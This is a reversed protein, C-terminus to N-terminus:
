AYDEITAILPNGDAKKLIVTYTCDGNDVVFVRGKTYLDLLASYSIDWRFGAAELVRKKVASPEVAVELLETSQPTFNRAPITGLSFLGAIMLSVFIQSRKM